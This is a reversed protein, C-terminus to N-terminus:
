CIKLVIFYNCYLLVFNKEYLILWVVGLKFFNFYVVELMKLGFVLFRCSVKGIVVVVEYRVGGGRVGM